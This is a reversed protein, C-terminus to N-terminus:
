KTDFVITSSVHNNYLNVYNGRGDRMHFELTKLTACGCNLYDAFSVLRDVIMYGYDSTVPVQKIINNSFNSVTDFSGLNPSTIYINHIPQLRLRNITMGNNKDYTPSPSVINNLIENVSNPASIMGTGMVEDDTLIRFQITDSWTSISCINNSSDYASGISAVDRLKQDLVQSFALETYNGPPITITHEIRVSSTTFIGDMPVITEVYLKDNENRAITKFLNPICM